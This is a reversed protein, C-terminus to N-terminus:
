IVDFLKEHDKGWVLEGLPWKAVSSVNNLKADHPLANLHRWLSNAVVDALLILPDDKGVVSIEGLFRSDLPFPAGANIILDRSVQEQRDPDWGKVTDQTRSVNRTIELAKEYRAAVAPDTQDFKIDVRKRGEQEAFADLMLGLNIMLDDEIRLDSPRNAGVIKVKSLKKSNADARVTEGAEHMARALGARRAVYVVVVRSAHMMSFLEYRVTEAVAGWAENGPSFADTIHLAAGPPAAARFREFLPRCRQRLYNDHEAPVPLTCILSTEHDGAPTLDRVPGRVGAEDAYAFLDATAPLKEM